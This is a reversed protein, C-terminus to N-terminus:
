TGFFIAMAAVLLTALGFLIVQTAAYRQVPKTSAADGDVSDRVQTTLEMLAVFGSVISGLYLVWAVRLLNRADAQANQMVQNQFTITLTLVATALSLFQKVVDSALSTRTKIRDENSLSVAPTPTTRTAMGIGGIVVQRPVPATRTGGDALTRELFDDVERASHNRLDLAPFRM